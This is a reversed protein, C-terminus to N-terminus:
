RKQQKMRQTKDENKGNKRRERREESTHGRYTHGGLRGKATLRTLKEGVRGKNRRPSHKPNPGMNRSTANGSMRSNEGGEKLVMSLLPLLTHSLRQLTDTPRTPERQRLIESAIVDYNEM